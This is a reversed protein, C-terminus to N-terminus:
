ASRKRIIPINVKGLPRSAWKPMRRTSMEERGETKDIGGLRAINPYGRGKPNLALDM